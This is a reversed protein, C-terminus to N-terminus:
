LRWGQGKSPPKGLLPWYDSDQSSRGISHSPAPGPSCFDVNWLQGFRPELTPSGRGQSPLQQHGEWPSMQAGPGQWTM